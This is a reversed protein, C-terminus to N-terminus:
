ATPEPTEPPLTAEKRGKGFVFGPALAVGLLTVPVIQLIQILVSAAVATDKPAGFSAATVTYAFQFVGVNGPTARVLLGLNTALVVAVDGAPPLPAHTARATLSFTLVQCVWALLSLGLAMAFRSPTALAGVTQGFRRLQGRLRSLFSEPLAARAIVATELPAARRGAWLLLVILFILLAAAPYRWKSFEEPIPLALSAVALMALYGLLDFVRELALTALITAAPIATARAVFVVRAADGGNAVLVNNLGAGAATARVALPLSRAGVPRLFIWWRIGKLGLSVLNIVAAAALLPLSAGRMAHATARWDISRAAYVLLAIVALTVAWRLLRRAAPGLRPLRRREGAPTVPATPTASITM